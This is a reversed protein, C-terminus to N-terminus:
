LKIGFVMEIQVLLEKYQARPIKIRFEKTMICTYHVNRDIKKIHKINIITSRNVRFFIDPNLKAEISGINDRSEISKIKSSLFLRTKNGNTVAEVFIIDDSQVLELGGKKVISVAEKVISQNETKAQPISQTSSDALKSTIKHVTDVLDQIEIPKLLYDEVKYRIAKLAFEDHATCMVVFTSPKIVRELLDFGTGQDLIIDLFLIDPVKSHLYREAEKLRTFKASIYLSPCYKEIYYGLLEVNKFEDDIIVTNWKKM